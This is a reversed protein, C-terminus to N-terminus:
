RCSFKGIPKAYINARYSTANTIGLSGPSETQSSSRGPPLEGRQARHDYQSPSVWRDSSGNDDPGQLSEPVKMNATDGIVLSPGLEYHWTSRHYKPQKSAVDPWYGARGITWRLKEDENPLKEPPSFDEAYRPHKELIAVLKAQELSV